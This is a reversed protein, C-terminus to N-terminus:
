NVFFKIAMWGPLILLTVFAAFIPLTLAMRRMMAAGAFRIRPLSLGLIPLLPLLYRGQPGDIHTMGVNTWTLYQSLWILIVTGVIIGFLMLTDRWEPGTPTDVLIDAVVAGGIALMWLSYLTDPLRIRLWDLIGIASDIFNTRYIKIAFDNWVMMLFQVPHALVVRLQSAVNTAYLTINPDGPWLPGPHYAPRIEPAAVFWMAYLFWLAAPLIILMMERFRRFMMRREMIWARVPPIPLLYALAFLAYPPKVLIVLALCAAGRRWMGRSILAAALATMAIFPGDPDCSAALSVTMPMALTVFIMAQGRRAIILALLGIFSSFLYAAIRAAFVAQYPSGGMIQTLKIGIAPPVYFIPFYIAIPDLVIFVNKHTWRFNIIKALVSQNFPQAASACAGIIAPDARVGASIINRGDETTEVQREGIVAGHLLAEARVMQAPEDNVLGPPTILCMVLGLPFVFLIFVRSLITKSIGERM